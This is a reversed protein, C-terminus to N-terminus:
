KKGEQEKIRELMQGEIKQALMDLYLLKDMDEQPQKRLETPLFRRNTAVWLIWTPYIENFEDLTINMTDPLSYDPTQSPASQM